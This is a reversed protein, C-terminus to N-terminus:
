RLMSSPSRTTALASDREAVSSRVCAACGRVAQLDVASLLGLRPAMERPDQLERGLIDFSPVPDGVREIEVVFGDLCLSRVPAHQFDRGAVDLRQQAEGIEMGSGRTSLAALAVLQVNPM